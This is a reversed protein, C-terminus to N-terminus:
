GGAPNALNTIETPTLIRTYLRLDDLVGNFTQALSFGGGVTDQEQGFMLGGPDITLTSLSM